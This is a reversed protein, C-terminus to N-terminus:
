SQGGLYEGLAGILKVEPELRVGSRAEVQRQVLEILARVDAATAGGTNVIYNAHTRSVEAAGVRTGKLGAAEILIVAGIEIAPILRSRRLAVSLRRRWRPMTDIPLLAEANM